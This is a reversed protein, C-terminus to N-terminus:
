TLDRRGGHVNVQAPACNSNEEIPEQLPLELAPPGLVIVDRGRSEISPQVDGCQNDKESQNQRLLHIRRLPEHIRGSIAVGVNGIREVVQIRVTRCNRQRHSIPLGKPGTSPILWTILPFSVYLRFTM